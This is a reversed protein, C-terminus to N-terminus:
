KVAAEVPIFASPRPILQACDAEVKQAEGDNAANIFKFAVDRMCGLALVGHGAEPVVVHRARPGLARAVREGHRPPTVPDAGGSLLLAAAHLAPIDYFEKPLIGRPWDACIQRYLQSFSDGYDAGAADRNQAVRPLDESCVVSFHMGEAISGLRSGANVSSLGLLPEFRGHAAESIALPLAAALAPTYLPTRVLSLVTDRTINLREVVGTVPHAVGANRPLGALLSQWDARLTPYRARCRDDAECASMQADLAAQNDTSFSATLAMDNPAVGDLVVRRVTQPFQRTYELALRTGYSVGILNIRDVELLVRVADIDKAALPSTFNRLDGYPLKQLRARCDAMRVVLGETSATEALPRTPLDDACRLPASRGTGRQDVFVLDRRNGLRSLMRSVPGAVEIASQGPGGAFFFVPDQIRNRALAPIVVFHVDIQVGQPRNPDLARRTVGCYADHEVGAIRCIELGHRKGIAHAPVCPMLTATIAGLATSAVLIWKKKMSPMTKLPCAQLAPPRGPLLIPTVFPRMPRM